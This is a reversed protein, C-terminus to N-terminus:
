FYRMEAGLVREGRESDARLSGEMEREDRGSILWLWAFWAPTQPSVRGGLVLTEAAAALNCGSALWSRADAVAGGEGLIAVQPSVALAKIWGRGLGARNVFIFSGALSFGAQVAWLAGRIVLCVVWGPHTPAQPQTLWGSSSPLFFLNM